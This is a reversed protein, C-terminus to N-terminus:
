SRGLLFELNRPLIDLSGALDADTLKTALAVPLQDFGTGSMVLATEEPSFEAGAEVQAMFDRDGPCARQCHLCGVLCNYWAPDTWGPFPIDGPKENHFVICREAHLQFRSGQDRRDPV